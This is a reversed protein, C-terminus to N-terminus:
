ELKFIIQSAQLIMRQKEPVDLWHYSWPCDSSKSCFDDPFQSIAFLGTQFTSCWYFQYLESSAWAKGKAANSKEAGRMWDHHQNCTEYGNRQTRASPHKGFDRCIRDLEPWRGVGPCSQFLVEEVFIKPCEVPHRLDDNLGFIGCFQFM